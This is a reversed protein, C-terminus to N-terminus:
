LTHLWARLHQSSHAGAVVCSHEPPYQGYRARQQRLDRQVARGLWSGGRGIASIAGVPGNGVCGPASLRCVTGGVAVVSPTGVMPTGRMRRESRSGDVRDDSAFLRDVQIIRWHLGEM